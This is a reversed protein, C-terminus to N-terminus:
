SERRTKAFGYVLISVAALVALAAATLGGTVLSEQWPEGSFGEGAIPAAQSTGFVAGILTFGWIGYLSSLLLWTTTRDLGVSLRAHPWALGLVLLLMGNLVGGLHASLGMRPNTVAPAVLGSLLGLFILVAGHFLLERKPRSMMPQPQGLDDTVELDSQYV